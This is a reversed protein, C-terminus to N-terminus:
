ACAQVPAAINSQCARMETFAICFAAVLAFRGFCNTVTTFIVTVTVRTLILAVIVVVVPSRPLNDSVAIQQVIPVWVLRRM